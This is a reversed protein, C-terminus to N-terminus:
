DSARPPVPRPLLWQAWARQFENLNIGTVKELATRGTPDGPYGSTYADYFRKLLDHEYLYMLISGSQGYALDPRSWFDGGNMRLLGELPIFSNRKVATKVAALRWTDNPLLQQEPGPGAAIRRPNEFLTALGESLWTPHQQGLAHQDAAHLAHTFEHRLEPGVHKVLLTRTTDDYWGEVGRRRELKYFDAPSVLVVRIFEDPRHSFIEEWESHAQALLASKLSELDRRAGPVAFVLKHPEDAEYLYSDGFQTKLRQVIRLAARHRFEDRRAILNRYRPFDRLREFAPEHELHNFDTFGDEAARELDALAADGHGTAVEVAALNYRCTTNQPQIRLAELLVDAAEDLKKRDILEIARRSLEAVHRRDSASIQSTPATAPSPIALAWESGLGILAM